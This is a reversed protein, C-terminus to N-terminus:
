LINVYRLRSKMKDSIKTVKAHNFFFLIFVDTINRKTMKPTSHSARTTYRIAVVGNVSYVAKTTTADAIMMKM